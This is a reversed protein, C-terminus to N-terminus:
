RQYIAFFDRQDPSLYRDTPGRMTDLLKTPRLNGTDHGYYFLHVMQPHIDLEMGRTSGTAALVRALMSLDLQDGAVYYIHGAGDVGVASRWTYQMQNKTTGWRNDVNRDLGPVPKGGDVILALNQRVSCVHPGLHADRGWEGITVHGTDDIILSAVGNQLPRAVRERTYYGGRSGDLKFGSNFTAVLAPRLAPPVQGGEPWLHRDPERTGAILRAAVRQQDFRAVATLLDPDQPDPRLYTAFMNASGDTGPAGGTWRGERPDFTTGLRALPAPAGPGVAPGTPTPTGPRVVHPHRVYWWNEIADVLPGAGHDRMWDVTRVSLSAQGPYVLARTYSFTALSTAMIVALVVIPRFVRGILPAWRKVRRGGSPQRPVRVLDSRSDVVM